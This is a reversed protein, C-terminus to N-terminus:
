PPLLGRADAIGDGDLDSKTGLAKTLRAPEKRWQTIAAAGAATVIRNGFANLLPSNVQQGPQAARAQNVRILEEPTFRGLQGPESGSPGDPHAHCMACNVPQGSHERVFAQYEPFARSSACALLAMAIMLALRWSAMVGDHGRWIRRSAFAQIIVARM